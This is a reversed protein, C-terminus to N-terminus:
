IKMDAWLPCIKIYEYLTTTKVTQSNINNYLGFLWYNLDDMTSFFQNTFERKFAQWIHEAPNLEPSYPPIFILAINNPIILKKAKHFAGNDLVVLKLEKPKVLSFNNLYSQFNETTCKGLNQIFHSGDIPSFSGFLHTSTFVQQFDCVPKIGRATLSKGARTFLGFRSEDEFYLNVSLFDKDQKSEIAELCKQGFSKKFDEVAQVDKKVHSKRAVKIKTNFNHQVFKLLTIYKVHKEFQEKVWRQLEVYGVIGNKPNNVLEGLAAKESASFVSPKFGKKKHSLLQSIGGQRYAARWNNISQGWVGVRRMLEEKSIGAEGARQMEILMQLRPREWPKATKLRRRLEKIDETVKIYLAKAM